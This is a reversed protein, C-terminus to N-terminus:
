RDERCLLFWNPMDKEQKRARGISVHKSVGRMYDRMQDYVFRGLRASNPLVSPWGNPLEAGAPPTEFYDVVVTRDDVPKTVFYGPGTFGKMAQENYGWLTNGSAETRCFRKQFHTFVPLSNKGHHIVEVRKGVSPPVFFDLTLAPGAKAAEFLIAQHRGDVGHVAQLRAAHDLGDLFAALGPLDVSNGTFFSEFTTSGSAATATATM